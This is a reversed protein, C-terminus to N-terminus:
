KIIYVTPRRVGWKRAQKKSNKYVDITKGKINGGTDCAQCIGYGEVYLWTGLKIVRPDVAIRGVNAKKGSRTIGGGTYSYAKVKFSKRIRLKAKAVKSHSVSSTSIVTNSMNTSVKYYYTKSPRIKKNTLKRKKTTKIRKYKGNEKTARYVNYSEAGDVKSWRVVITGKKTPSATISSPATIATPTAASVSEAGATNDNGAVVGGPSTLEEAFVMSTPCMVLILALAIVTTFIKNRMFVEIM